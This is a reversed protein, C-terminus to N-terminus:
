EFIGCSDQSFMQLDCSRTCIQRPSATCVSLELSARDVQGPRGSYLLAITLLVKVLARQAQQVDHCPMAALFASRVYFLLIVQTTRDRSYSFDLSSKHNEDPATLDFQVLGTIYNKVMTKSSEASEASEVLIMPFCQSFRRLGHGDPFSCTISKPGGSIVESEAAESSLLVFTKM